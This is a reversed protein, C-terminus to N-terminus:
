LTRSAAPFFQPGEFTFRSLAARIKDIERQIRLEVTGRASKAAQEDLTLAHLMMSEAIRGESRSALALWRSALDALTEADTGSTVSDNPTGDDSVSSSASQNRFEWEANALPGLRPNKSLALWKLGGAWDRLFLCHYRGAIGADSPRVNITDAWRVIDNAKLRLRSMQEIADEYDALQSRAEDDALFDASRRSLSIVQQCHHLSQDRLLAEAIFFGSTLVNLHADRTELFVNRKLFSEAMLPQIPIQHIRALEQLGERVRVPDSVTWGVKAVSVTAAWYDASGPTSESQCQSLRVLLRPASTPSVVEALEPLKFRLREYADKKEQEGPEPVPGEDSAVKPEPTIEGAPATFPDPLYDSEAPSRSSAFADSVSKALEIAWAGAQGLLESASQSAADDIITGQDSAVDGASVSVHEERIPVSNSQARDVDSKTLAAPIEADRDVPTGTSSIADDNLSHAQTVAPTLSDRSMRKVWFTTVVLLVILGVIFAPRSIQRRLSGVNRRVTRVKLLSDSELHNAVASGPDFASEPLLAAGPEGASLSANSAASMSSESLEAACAELPLLSEDGSDSQMEAALDVSLTEAFQQDHREDCFRTRSAAHLALPLIRGISARHSKDDRLRPDLVRYASVTVKSLARGTEVSPSELQQRALESATKAAAQRIITPRWEQPRVGLRRFDEAQLRTSPESSDKPRDM